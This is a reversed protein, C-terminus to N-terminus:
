AAELIGAAALQRAVERIPRDALVHAFRVGARRAANALAL